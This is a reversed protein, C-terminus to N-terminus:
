SKDQARLAKIISADAWYINANGSANLRHFILFKGDPTVSAAADWGDTNITPGLNIAEGWAGDKQKFSIYIDSDGFGNERRSDWLLYSEDPAIFPHANFTGSNIIKSFALPHKREGDILRSYRITGDGDASGVEDFVFTGALSSTMRMIRYVEFSAGLGKVDSWGDPTWVKYRRGLHMLKGSPAIMPQGVPKSIVSEQWQNNINEFVVFEVGNDTGSDRLFYFANLDPTFTGGYTYRETSVIGPAFVKVEAGPPTQGLYPGQIAGTQGYSFDIVVIALLLAAIFHKASM